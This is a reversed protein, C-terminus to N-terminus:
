NITLWELVELGNNLIDKAWYRHIEYGVSELEKDRKRDEERGDPYNHWYEGDVEIIINPEIYADAVYSGL